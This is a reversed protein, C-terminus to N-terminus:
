NQLHAMCIAEPTVKLTMTISLLTHHMRYTHPVKILELKDGLCFIMPRLTVTSLSDTASAKTQKNAKEGLKHSSANAMIVQLNHTQPKQSVYAGTHPM